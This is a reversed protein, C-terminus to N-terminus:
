FRWKRIQHAELPQSRPHLGLPPHCTCWVDMLYGTQDGKWQDVQQRISRTERQGRTVAFGIGLMILTLLVWIM